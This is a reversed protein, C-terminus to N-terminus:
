EEDRGFGVVLDSTFCFLILLFLIPDFFSASPPLLVLASPFLKGPIQNLFESSSSSFIANFFFCHLQQQPHSSLSVLFLTNILNM